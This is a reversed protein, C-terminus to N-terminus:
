TWNLVEGIILAVCLAAALLPLWCPAAIRRCSPPDIRQVRWLALDVVAFVVLTILNTLVLLHEFPVLLAAALVMAGALATATLPTRTRPHVHGLVAPLQGRQAMGYFLRALMVLEVLIGNAVSIGGVLAFITVSSGSFLGLLPNSAPRDALVTATAVAVYLVVSATIAGIIGRPVTKRPDKVEEALNALTEFGIFAFFALFAGATAQRWGSLDTPIIGSLHYERTTSVGVITAVVLGVIEVLGLLAALGVSTHVGAIAVLTFGGVLGTILLSAPLPVLVSLFHASGRAISAAAVVVALSIALGTALALRDSGFGRRVYAVGGSAEPFRSALEAYCLGTCAAAVGALLFSVPAANGAREIVAGIAVYIGAGVIVGLGYLVLPWFTLVRRLGGGADADIDTGTAASPASQGKKMSGIGM